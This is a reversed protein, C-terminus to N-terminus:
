VPDASPIWENTAPNGKSSPHCASAVSTESSLEFSSDSNKEMKIFGTGTQVRGIPSHFLLDQVIQNAFAQFLLVLVSSYRTTNSTSVISIKTTNQRWMTRWQKVGTV